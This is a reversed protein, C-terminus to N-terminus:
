RKKYVRAENAGKMTKVLECQQEVLRLAAQTTPWDCDDFTLYCGSRLKPVYLNVDRCSALETHSGDINLFDIRDFLRAVNQSGNRIITVWPDLRHAWIAIMTQRHMEELNAKEKWWRANEEVSDGEIQADIKWPDIGYVHSGGLERAVFGMSITSRGAFVGIDLITQAKTEYIREAMEEGREPTTWGEMHPLYNYIADRIHSPIM